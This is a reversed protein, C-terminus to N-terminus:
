GDPTIIFGTGHGGISGSTNRTSGTYYAYDIMYYAFYAIFTPMYEAASIQGTEYLEDVVGTIDNYITNKLEWDKWYMNATWKTYVFIVGPKNVQAITRADLQDKAFAGSLSSCLILVILLFSLFIRKKM